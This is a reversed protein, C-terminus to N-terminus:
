ERSWEAVIFLVAGCFFFAALFSFQWCAYSATSQMLSFTGSTHSYRKSLVLFDVLFVLAPTCALSVILVRFHTRSHRKLFTIVLVRTGRPPQGTVDASTVHIPEDTFVGDPRQLYFLLRYKYFFNVNMSVLGHRFHYYICLNNLSVFKTFLTM